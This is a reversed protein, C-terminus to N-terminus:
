IQVHKGILHTTSNDSSHVSKSEHHSMCLSYCQVITIGHTQLMCASMVNASKIKTNGWVTHGCQPNRVTPTFAPASPAWLQEGHGAANSKYIEAYICRAFHQCAHRNRLSVCLRREPRTVHCKKTFKWCPEQVHRALHTDQDRPGANKGTFKTCFLLEQPMNFTPHEPECLTQTWSRPGPMKSTCTQMFHRRHFLPRAHRNRLSACFTPQEEPGTVNKRRMDACLPEQSM